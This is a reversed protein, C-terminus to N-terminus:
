TIFIVMTQGETGKKCFCMLGQLDNDSAFVNVNNQLDTLLLKFNKSSKTRGLVKKGKQLWSESTKMLDLVEPIELQISLSEANMLLEKVSDYSRNKINRVNLNGAFDKEFIEGAQGYWNKISDHLKELQHLTAKYHHNSKSALLLKEIEFLSDM